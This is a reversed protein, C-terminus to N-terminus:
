ERTIMYAFDTSKGDVRFYMEYLPVIEIIERLDDSVLASM